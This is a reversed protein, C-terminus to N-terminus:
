QGTTHSLPKLPAKPLGCLRQSELHLADLSGVSIRQNRFAVFLGVLLGSFPGRCNWYIFVSTAVFGALFVKVHVVFADVYFFTTYVFISVSISVFTDVFNGVFNGM